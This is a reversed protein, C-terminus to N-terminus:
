INIRHITSRLMVMCVLVLKPKELEGSSAYPVHYLEDPTSERGNVLNENERKSKQCGFCSSIILICLLGINIKVHM